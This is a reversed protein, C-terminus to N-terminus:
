GLQHRRSQLRLNRKQQQKQKKKQLQKLMKKKQLKKAPPQKMRQAKGKAAHVAGPKAPAAEALPLGISLSFAMLMAMLFLKRM